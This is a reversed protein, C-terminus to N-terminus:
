NTPVRRKLQEFLWHQVVTLSDPTLDAEDGGSQKLMLFRGDPAVDFMTPGDVFFYPGEFLKEPTGWDAPTAGRVAVAMVAQGKRYFLTQSDKAWVPGEGGGGSVPWRRASVDPYPRVSIANEGSENSEYALWRGNPAVRGSSERAPTALLTEVRHDGTVRVARLDASATPTVDGTGFDVFVLREDPSWSSPLHTGTTLRDVDGTGDAARVFIGPGGERGTSYYAIRLGDPSWVPESNRNPDSTLRGSIGRRLEHIWVDSSNSAVSFYAMRGGDASLRPVLHVGPPVSIPEEHGTRNVWFFRATAAMRLSASGVYVLTGDGSVAFQAAGSAAGGRVSQAVEDVLPVPGGKVELRGIDFAQALLSGRRRYVLHGTPLYRADTGGPVVIRRAGGNLSQVVIRADDWTEAAQALTFLVARGGPLLQPGHAREGADLKVLNEPTSGATTSVRWIGGPGQGYLITDDPAWSAGFPAASACIVIPAGGNVSVKKLHGDQWFGLWQGDPSFFPSVGETIAVAPLQDRLRLYLRRNAVYAFRSGDPSVAVLHRASEGPVFRVGAPLTISFRTVPGSVAPKMTWAAWGALSAAVVACGVPLMLRQWLAARPSAAPVAEVVPAILLEELELRADAIDALRRRRDRQLSRRLVRHIAPPTAAPLATWDPEKSLVAVLVDTVDDGQFIRRGALMEFLVCGFAWIDSRKDAARGKAQEPAMYTATGLLVGAGTMVAPSTITPSATADTSGAAVSDLAKALGFDLVKVMGDPRVKVNAPKLDRHIIGQEHAAEVAEAIQKAIPLAEGIPIPGQGIRDALTPGEVLEMVLARVSDTKELGYIQAINPHNLSALTKAEREFRALREPDHAFADPLIKIAVQRGLNTDTACWVEGM